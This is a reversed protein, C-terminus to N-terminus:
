RVQVVHFVILTEILILRYLRVTNQTFMMLLELINKLHKCQMALYIFFSVAGSFTQQFTPFHHFCTCSQKLRVSSKDSVVLLSNM